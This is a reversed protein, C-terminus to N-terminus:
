QCCQTQQRGDAQCRLCGNSSRINIFTQIVLPNLCVTVLHLLSPIPLVVYE